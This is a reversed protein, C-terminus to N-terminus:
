TCSQLCFYSSSPLHHQLTFLGFHQLATTFQWFLQWMWHEEQFLRIGATFLLHAIASFDVKDHPVTVTICFKYRGEYHWPPFIRFYTSKQKFITWLKMLGHFQHVLLHTLPNQINSHPCCSVVEECCQLKEQFIIHLYTCTERQGYILTTELGMCTGMASWTWNNPNTPMLHPSPTFM